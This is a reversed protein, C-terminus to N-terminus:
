EREAHMEPADALSGTSSLAWDGDSAFADAAAESVGIRSIQALIHRREAMIPAM